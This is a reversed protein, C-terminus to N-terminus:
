QPEIISAPPTWLKTQLFAGVPFRSMMSIGQVVHYGTTKADAM